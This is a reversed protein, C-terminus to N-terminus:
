VAARDAVRKGPSRRRGVSGAIERARGLLKGSEAPTLFALYAVVMIWGFLGLRLAYNLGLHLGIGLGIGLRRTRRTWLLFPIAFEVALVGYTLVNGILM